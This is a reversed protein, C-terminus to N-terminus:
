VVAEECLERAVELLAELNDYAVQAEPIVKDALTRKLKTLTKDDDIEEFRRMKMVLATGCEVMDMSLREIQKMLKSASASDYKEGADKAPAPPKKGDLKAAKAEEKAELKAEKEAVVEKTIEDLPKDVGLEKNSANKEEIKKLDSSSIFKNDHVLWKMADQRQAATEYRLLYRILTWSPGKSILQNVSGEDPFRQAFRRYDTVQKELLSFVKACHLAARQSFKSEENIEIITMMQDIHYGLVWNARIENSHKERSVNLASTQIRRFDNVQIAGLGTEIEQADFNVDGILRAVESPELSKTSALESKDVEEAASEVLDSM